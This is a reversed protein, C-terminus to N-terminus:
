LKGLRRALKLWGQQTQYKLLGIYPATFINKQKKEALLFM